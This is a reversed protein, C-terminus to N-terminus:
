KLGRAYMITIVANYASARSLGFNLYLAYLHLEEMNHLKM